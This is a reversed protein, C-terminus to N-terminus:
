YSSLLHLLNIPDLFHDARSEIEREPTSSSRLRLPVGLFTVDLGTVALSRVIAVGEILM